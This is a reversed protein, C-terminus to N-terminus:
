RIVGREGLSQFHALFHAALGERQRQELARTIVRELPDGARGHDVIVRPQGLLHEVPTLARKEQSEVRAVWAIARLCKEFQARLDPHIRLIDSLQASRASAFARPTVASTSPTRWRSSTRRM